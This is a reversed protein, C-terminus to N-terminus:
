AGQYLVAGGAVTYLVIGAVLGWAAGSVAMSTGEIIRNNAAIFRAYARIAQALFADETVSYEMVEVLRQEPLGGVLRKPLLCWTAAVTSSLVALTGAAFLAVAFQPHSVLDTRRWFVTFGAVGLGLIVGDFGLLTSANARLNVLSRAQVHLLGKGEQYAHRLVEVSAQVMWGVM